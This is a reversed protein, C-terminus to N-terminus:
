SLIKFLFQFFFQFLISFSNFIKEIGMSFGELFPLFFLGFFGWDQLVDEDM